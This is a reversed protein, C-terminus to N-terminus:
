KLYHKSYMTTYKDKYPTLGFRQTVEYIFDKTTFGALTFNLEGLSYKKTINNFTGSLNHNTQNFSSIGFIFNDGINVNFTYKITKSGGTAYFIRYQIWNQVM